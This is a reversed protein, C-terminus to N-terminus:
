EVKIIKNYMLCAVVLSTIGSVLKGVIVSALYSRDYIMTFALHDGIAYAASVAFAMNMIRGKKDMKDVFGLTPIVNALTTILGLISQDNINLVNGCHEFVKGFLRSVVALLPFVGALVFTVSAVIDMAEKIPTLGQVIVIGTLSEFIGLGLGIYIIITLINGVIGFIKRCLDPCFILGICIIVSMVILPISNILLEWIPCGTMLGGVICGLPMTAIGCLMGNFIDEYYMKDVMGLAMPILLIAAGLMSAVIMGNYGAWLSSDSLEYALAAGGADNAIFGAVVSIDMYLFETLPRFVYTLGKAIVPSLVIMGVMTLVLTGAVKIGKDFEEGLKFHNGTIKDLVGLLIFVGFLYEM